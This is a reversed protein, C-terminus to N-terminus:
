TNPNQRRVCVQKQAGRVYTLFWPGAEMPWPPPWSMTAGKPPCVAHSSCLLIGELAGPVPQGCAHPPGKHPQEELKM